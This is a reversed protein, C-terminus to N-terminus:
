VERASRFLDFFFNPRIRSNTGAPRQTYCLRSLFSIAFLMQPIKNVCAFNRMKMEQM